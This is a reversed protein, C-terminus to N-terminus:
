PESVDGGICNAITIGRRGESLAILEDRFDQDWAQQLRTPKWGLLSGGITGKVAKQGGWGRAAVDCFGATLKDAIEQLPALRIEKHQPTDERPLVGAEFAVDM